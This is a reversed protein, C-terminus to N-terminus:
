LWALTAATLALYRAGKAILVLIFFSALPEKMVGAVVTLPDGVIPVWSGLLTWRGFRHYWGQARQMQAPSAPFWRRDQFRLLYRGLYWNVVSGLVNGATAVAVLALAPQQNRVLQTVLIAESQMPLITAAVFASGFLLLYAIM